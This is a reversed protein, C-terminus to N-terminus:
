GDFHHGGALFDSGLDQLEVGFLVAHGQAQLLHAVIGPHAHRAAVRPVRRNPLTVLM